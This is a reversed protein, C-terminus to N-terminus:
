APDNSDFLFHFAQSDTFSSGFYGQSDQPDQESCLRTEGGSDLQDVVQDAHLKVEPHAQIWERLHEFKEPIHYPKKPKFNVESIRRDFDLKDYSKTSYLYKLNKVIAIKGIRNEFPHVNTTEIIVIRQFEDCAIVHM